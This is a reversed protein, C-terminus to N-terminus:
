TEQAQQVSPQMRCGTTIICSIEEFLATSTQEETLEIPFFVHGAYRALDSHFRLHSYRSNDNWLAILTSHDQLFIQNAFAAGEMGILVYAGACMEIQQRISLTSFDIYKVPHKEGLLNVVEDMGSYNRTTRKAVLIYRENSTSRFTQIFDNLETQYVHSHQFEYRNYPRHTYFYGYVIHSYSGSEYDEFRKGFFYQFIEHITSLDGQFGNNSFRFYRCSYNGLNSYKDFAKKTIWLPIIIDILLHYYSSTGWTDFIYLVDAKHSRKIMPVPNKEFRMENNRFNESIAWPTYLTPRDVFVNKPLYVTRNNVIGDRIIAVNADPDTNTLYQVSM